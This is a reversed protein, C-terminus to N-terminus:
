ETTLIETLKKRDDPEKFEELKPYGLPTIAVVNL